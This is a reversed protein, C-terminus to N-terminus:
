ILEYDYVWVWPNSDWTDRGNIKDILPAYAERLSGFLHPYPKDNLGYLMVSGEYDEIEFGSIGERICDEDSIDQLREARVATIRIFYRAAWELMFLKNAFGSRSKSMSAQASRISNWDIGEADPNIFVAADEKKDGDFQYTLKFTNCGVDEIAYPEKLYLVEGVKYKPRIVKDGNMLFHFAPAPTRPENTLDYGPHDVMLTTISRIKDPQPVMIRRTETKHREITAHFLPEKFCIGKM